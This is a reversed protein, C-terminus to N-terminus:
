NDTKDEESCDERESETDRSQNGQGEIQDDGDEKEVYGGDM